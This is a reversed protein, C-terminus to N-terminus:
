FPAEGARILRRLEKACGDWIRGCMTLVQDPEFEAFDTKGIEEIYDGAANMGGERAKMEYPDLRRIKRIDEIIAICEDCLWRPDNDGRSAFGIGVGVAHKGCVHCDAPDLDPRAATAPLAAPQPTM